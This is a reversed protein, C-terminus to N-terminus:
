PATLPPPLAPQISWDSSLKIADSARRAEGRTEFRMASQREGWPEPSVTALWVVPMDAGQRRIIVFAM